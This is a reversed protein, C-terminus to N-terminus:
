ILLPCFSKSYYFLANNTFMLFLSIHPNCEYCASSPILRTQRSKNVLMSIMTTNQRSSPLQPSFHAHTKNRERKLVDPLYTHQIHLYLAHICAFVTVVRAAFARWNASVGCRLSIWWYLIHLFLPHIPTPRDSSFDIRKNYISTPYYKM